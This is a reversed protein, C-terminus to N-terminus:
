MFSSHAMTSQAELIPAFSSIQAYWKRLAKASTLPAVLMYRSAYNHFVSYIFNWNGTDTHSVEYALKGDFTAVHITFHESGQDVGVVAVM